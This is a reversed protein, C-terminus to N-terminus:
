DDDDRWLGCADHQIDWCYYAHGVRYGCWMCPDREYGLEFALAELLEQRRALDPRPDDMEERHRREWRDLHM